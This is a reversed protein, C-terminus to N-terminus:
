DNFSYFFNNQYFRRQWSCFDVTVIARYQVIEQASITKGGRFDDEPLGEVVKEVAENSRM